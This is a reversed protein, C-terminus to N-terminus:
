SWLRRLYGKWKSLQKPVGTRTDGTLILQLIRIHKETDTRMVDVLLNWMPADGYSRLRRGLKRLQTRDRVEHRLLARTETRLEGSTAHRHPFAPLTVSPGDISGWAITNALAELMKHHREEDELILKVLYRAAPSEAEEVFRQYRKLLEAEESGHRNLAEVVEYASM